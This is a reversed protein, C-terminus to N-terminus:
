IKENKFKEKIELISSITYNQLKPKIEDYGKDLFFTKLGARYGAEIDKFRDGVLYSFNLNLNWEQKAKFIM